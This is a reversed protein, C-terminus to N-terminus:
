GPGAPAGADGAPTGIVGTDQVGAAALEDLVRLLAGSPAREDAAVLVRKGDAALDAARAGLDDAAVAEGAVRVSGDALVTVAVLDSRDVPAGSRVAPLKVDLADARVMVAVSFIFFTLLLFVVDILPMMELRPEDPEGM